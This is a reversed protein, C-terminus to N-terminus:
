SAPQKLIADLQRGHHEIHVANLRLLQFPTVRGFYPHSISREDVRIPDLAASELRAATDRLRALAEERSGTASEPRTERPARSKPLNRHFLIHPLLFWRLLTAMTTGVRPTMAPGGSLERLVTDCGLFLHETIVAPSWGENPRPESWLASPLALASRIYGELARQHEERAKEQRRTSVM